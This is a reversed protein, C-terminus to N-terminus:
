FHLAMEPVQIRGIQSGTSFCVSSEAARIVVKNGLFQKIKIQGQLEDSFIEYCLLVAEESVEDECVLVSYEDVFCIQQVNGIPLSKMHKLETEYDFIHYGNETAVAITNLDKYMAFAVAKDDLMHEAAGEVEKLSVLNVVEKTQLNIEILSLDSLLIFCRENVSDANVVAIDPGKPLDAVDEFSWNYNEVKENELISEGLLSVSGFRHPEQKMEESDLQKLREERERLRQDLIEDSEEVLLDEDSGELDPEELVTEPQSASTLFQEDPEAKPQLSNSAQTGM